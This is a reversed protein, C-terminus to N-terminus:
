PRAPDCTLTIVVTDDPRSLQFNNCTLIVLPVYLFTDKTIRISLTHFNKSLMCLARLEIVLMSGEWCFFFVIFIRYADCITVCKYM